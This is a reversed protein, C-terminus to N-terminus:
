KKLRKLEAELRKIKKQKNEQELTLKEKERRALEKEINKENTSKWLEYAALRKEYDRVRKNYEIDSEDRYGVIGLSDYTNELVFSNFDALSVGIQEWYREILSGQNKLLLKITDIDIPIALESDYVNCIHEKISTKRRPAKPPNKIKFNSTM